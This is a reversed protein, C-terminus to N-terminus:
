DRRIRGIFIDIQRIKEDIKKNKILEAIAQKRTYSSVTKREKLLYEKEFNGRQAIKEICSIIQKDFEAKTKGILSLLLDDFESLFCNKKEAVVVRHSYTEGFNWLPSLNVKENEKVNCALLFMLHEWSLLCVNNDIAQAYIQSQSHPYQFYPSCLVAYNNDKRWASLSAVKFDKQNKATRSLRFSKADAVLGYNYIRSQAIVDACDAREYIVTSKLGLERFARSLIADSAKAFLKEETSDSRINEPIAGIQSILELFNDTNSIFENLKENAKLFGDRAYKLILNVFENFM